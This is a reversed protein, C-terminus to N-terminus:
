TGTRTFIQQVYDPDTLVLNSSGRFEMWFAGKELLGAGLLKPFISNFAQGKFKFVSIIAQWAKLVPLSDRKKPPALFLLYVIAALIALLILQLM